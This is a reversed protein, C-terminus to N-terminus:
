DDVRVINVGVVEVGMAELQEIVEQAKGMAEEQQKKGNLWLLSNTFYEEPTTGRMGDNEKATLFALVSCAGYVFDLSADERSRLHEEIEDAFKIPIYHGARNEKMKQM